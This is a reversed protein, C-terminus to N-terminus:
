GKRGRSYVDILLFQVDCASAGAAQNYATLTNDRFSCHRYTGQMSMLYVDNGIFILPNDVGRYEVQCGRGDEIKAERRVRSVLLGKNCCV